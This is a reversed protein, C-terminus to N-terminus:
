KYMKNHREKIACIIKVMNRRIPIYATKLYLFLGHKSEVCCVQEEKWYMYLVNSM